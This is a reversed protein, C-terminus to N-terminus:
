LSLGTESSEKVYEQCAQFISCIQGTHILTELILAFAFFAFVIILLPKGGPTRYDDPFKM